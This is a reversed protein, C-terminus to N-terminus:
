LIRKSGTNDFKFNIERLNTLRDKIKKRSKTDCFFLIFGGGGAGLLKGGKAGNQIGINYIDDITSDSIGDAVSKKLQWSDHLLKQFSVIDDSELLNKGERCIASMEELSKFSSDCDLINKRQKSLVSSAKRVKGTYFVLMNQELEKKSSASIRIPSVQVTDDKNFKIYNLNGFAAAYQDQKGIPEKLVNIELHSAKEALDHCSLTKNKYLSLANILGVTFSSSSGLGTGAPIDAISNIDVGKIKHIKLLERVIPHKINKINNEIETISYKVQVRDDFFKNIFIYMYKDISTSIVNGQSMKYFEQLDTGGGLFSIRFPTRVGIM